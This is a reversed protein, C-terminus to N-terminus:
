RQKLRIKGSFSHLVVKSASKGLNGFFARGAEITSQQHPMPDMAFDNQVSGRVSRARFSASTTAPVLAEIDGTHTALRYDGGSGFDGDYYVRGSNSNVEVLQGTVSNLHVDGDISTIEVHADHVDTLTVPGNMTRIHVHGHSFSRVDVPSIGGEFELDGQIGEATMPGSGSHLTLTVGRPVVVEYDVRGSQQDAGDLLHSEVSIRNGNQHSEIQVKDSQPMAIVSAQREAGPKVTISGYRTDISINAGPAVNFHLEKRGAALAVVALSLIIAVAIFANRLLNQM